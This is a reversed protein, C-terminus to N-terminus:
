ESAFHLQQQSGPISICQMAYTHCIHCQVDKTKNEVRPLTLLAGTPSSLMTYM